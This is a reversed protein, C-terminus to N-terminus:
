SNGVCVGLRSILYRMAREQAKKDLASLLNLSGSLAYMEQEITSDNEKEIAPIEKM